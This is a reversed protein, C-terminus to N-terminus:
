QGAVGQPPTNFDVVTTQGPRVMVERTEVRSQGNTSIEARLVYSGGTELAPTVLVRRNGTSTTANGDVTLRADAPINVMITAANANTNSAYPQQYESAPLYGYGGGYYGSQYSGGGYGGGHHYGGGYGGGCGYHLGHYGSCGGYGGGWGGGHHYGSCGGYGGGWGGHCGGYGGGYYGSCGGYGGNCGGGRGGRKGFDVTDTTTAMAIMLVATYM